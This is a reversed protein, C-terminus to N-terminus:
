LIADARRRHGDTVYRMRSFGITALHRHDNPNPYRDVNVGIGAAALAVRLHDLVAGCSIVAQRGSSDTAVLRDPDLFLELHDGDLVWRWPQSNHYSPARCALQVADEIVTTAVMTKTM